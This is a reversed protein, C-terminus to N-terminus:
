RLRGECLILFEGSVRTFKHARGVAMELTYRKVQARNLLRTESKM